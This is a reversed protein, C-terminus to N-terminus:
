NTLIGFFVLICELLIRVTRENVMDRLIQCPAHMGCVGGGRDGVGGGRVGEGQPCVSVQLFMVKAFKTEPRYFCILYAWIISAGPQKRFGGTIMHKEKLIAPGAPKGPPGPKGPGRPAVPLVPVVQTNPNGPRGPAVPAVPWVPGKPLYIERDCVSTFFYFSLTLEVCYISVKM